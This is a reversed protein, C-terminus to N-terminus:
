SGPLPDAPAWRAFHAWALAGCARCKQYRDLGMRVSSFSIGPVWETEYEASCASCRAVALWRDDVEGRGRPGRAMGRLILFTFAVGFVLLVTVSLLGWLNSM